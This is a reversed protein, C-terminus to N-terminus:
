TRSREGAVFEQAFREAGLLAGALDEAAERTRAAFELARGLETLGRDERGRGLLDLARYLRLRASELRSLLDALAVQTKQHDMLPSGFFGSERAAKLCAEYLAATTGLSWAAAALSPREPGPRHSSEDWTAVLARGSAPSASASEEIVLAARVLGLVAGPKSKASGTLGMDTLIRRPDPADKEGSASPGPKTRFYERARQRAASEEPKLFSDM